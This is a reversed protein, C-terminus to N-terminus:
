KRQQWQSEYGAANGRHALKNLRQEIIAARGNM